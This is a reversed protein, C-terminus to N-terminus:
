ERRRLAPIGPMSTASISRERTIFAPAASSSTLGTSFRLAQAEGPSCWRLAVGWCVEALCLSAGVQEHNEWIFEQEQGDQSDTAFQIATFAARRHVQDSQSRRTARLRCYGFNEDRAGGTSAITGGHIPGPQRSM